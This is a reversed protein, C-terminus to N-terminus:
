SSIKKLTRFFTGVESSSKEFNKKIMNETFLFETIMFESLILNQIDLLNFITNPSFNQNKIMNQYIGELVVFKM